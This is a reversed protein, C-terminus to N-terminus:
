EPLSSIFFTHHNDELSIKVTSTGATTEFKYGGAALGAQISNAVSDLKQRPVIISAYVYPADVQRGAKDFTANSISLTLAQEKFEIGRMRPDSTVTVGPWNAKTNEIVESLTLRKAFFPNTSAIWWICGVLLGGAIFSIVTRSINKM